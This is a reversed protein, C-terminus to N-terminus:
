IYVCLMRGTISKWVVGDYVCFTELMCFSQVFVRVGKNIKMVTVVVESTLGMWGDHGSVSASLQNMEPHTCV